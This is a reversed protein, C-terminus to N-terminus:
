FGAEVIITYEINAIQQALVRVIVCGYCFGQTSGKALAGFIAKLGLAVAAIV